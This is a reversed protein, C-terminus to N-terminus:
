LGAGFLLWCYEWVLHFSRRPIQQAPLEQMLAQLAEEFGSRLSRPQWGLEVRAKANSAIYAAGLLRLTDPHMFAPTHLRPALWEAMPILPRLVRGPLYIYVLKRQLLESWTEAVQKLSSNVGSLLYSEGIKGKEAALILGDAVDEVHVFSILTDSGPFIKLFGRYLLRFLDAIVSPDGPGYVGGPMAIIVPAGQKILPEVVRHHALWKSRDYATRWPPRHVHQEDVVRGCTDGLVVVSSTHVIRPVGAQWAARLVMETGHVNVPIYEGRKEKRFDYVGAVHFVVDCDKMARQLVERDFVDGPVVEAGLRAVIDASPQSRALARVQWDSAILKRILHSGIFGSGGTVFAKL